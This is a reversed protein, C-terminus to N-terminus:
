RSYNTRGCSKRGLWSRVLTRLELLKTRPLRFQMSLTDIEIGLFALVCAPGELKELAIPLGLRSFLSFLTSLFHDCEASGPHGVVLFDDLYHLISEVGEQKAIWEVADAVGTFIKPSVEAWVSAYYGRVICGGM